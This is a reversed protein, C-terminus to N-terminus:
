REGKRWEWGAQRFISRLTGTPVDANDAGLVTVKSPGTPHAWKEHSGVTAVVAYGGDRLRRRVERYKVTSNTVVVAEPSLAM